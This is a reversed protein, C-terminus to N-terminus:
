IRWRDFCAGSRFTPRKEEERRKEEEEEGRESHEDADSAEAARGTVDREIIVSELILWRILNKVSM